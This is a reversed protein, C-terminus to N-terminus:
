ATFPSVIDLALLFALLFNDPIDGGFHFAFLPFFTFGITKDTLLQNQLRALVSM